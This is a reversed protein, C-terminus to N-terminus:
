NVAVARDAVRKTATLEDAWSQELIERFIENAIYDFRNKNVDCFDAQYRAVCKTLAPHKVEFVFTGAVVDSTPAATYINFEVDKPVRPKNSENMVGARTMLAREANVFEQSSLGDYWVPVYSVRQVSKDVRTEGRSFLFAM